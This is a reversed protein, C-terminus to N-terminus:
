LKPSKRAHEYEYRILVLMPFRMFESGNKNGGFNLANRFRFVFKFDSIRIDFYLQLSELTKFLNSIMFVFSWFLPLPNTKM